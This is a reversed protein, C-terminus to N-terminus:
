KSEKIRKQFDLRDIKSTSFVECKYKKDLPLLTVSIYKMFKDTTVIDCYPMVTALTVADYLDGGTQRRNPFYVASATSISCFIDIFPTNLLEDSKLFKTFNSNEIGIEFLRQERLTMKQLNDRAIWRDVLRNSHLRAAEAGWAAPGIISSACYEKDAQLARRYHASHYPLSLRPAVNAWSQKLRRREQRLEDALPSSVELQFGIAHASETRSKISPQAESKFPLSWTKTLPPPNRLFKFAAEEIQLQIIDEYLSFELGLSLENIIKGVHARIRTDLSAEKRQFELEPCAIKDTSVAKRLDAFLLLWFETEDNNGLSGLQAKAMNSLYSLDLYVITRLSM